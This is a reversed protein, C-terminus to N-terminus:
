TEIEHLALAIMAMVDRMEFPKPLFAYLGEDTKDAHEDDPEYDGSMMIIKVDPNSALMERACTQGDINPIDRDLMVLQIERGCERFINLARRGDTASLVGYNQRELYNAVSRVLLPQDDVILITARAHETQNTM